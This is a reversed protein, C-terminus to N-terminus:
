DDWRGFGPISVMDENFVGKETEKHCRDYDNFSAVKPDKIAIRDLIEDYKYILNDPKFKMQSKFRQLGRRENKEGKDAGSVGPTNV